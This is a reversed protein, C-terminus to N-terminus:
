EGEMIRRMEAEINDSQTGMVVQIASGMKMVGHAGAAKLAPEDIKAKDAVQVRIRTICPEMNEINEKGGLGAIVQGAVEEFGM